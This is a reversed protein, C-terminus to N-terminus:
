NSPGAIAAEENSDLAEAVPLSIVEGVSDNNNFGRNENFLRNRQEKVRQRYERQRQLKTKGNPNHPRGIIPLIGVIKAQVAQRQDQKKKCKNLESSKNNDM